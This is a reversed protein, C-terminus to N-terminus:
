KRKEKTMRYFTQDTKNIKEFLQNQPKNIYETRNKNEIENVAAGIKLM